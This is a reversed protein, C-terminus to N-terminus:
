RFYSFMHLLAVPRQEQLNDRERTLRNDDRDISKLILKFLGPANKSFDKMKTPSYLTEGGKSYHRYLALQFQGILKDM